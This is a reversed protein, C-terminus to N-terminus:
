IDSLGKSYIIVSLDERDHFMISFSSASVEDSPIRINELVPIKKKSRKKRGDM